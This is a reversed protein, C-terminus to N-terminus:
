RLFASRRFNRRRRFIPRQCRFILVGLSRVSTPIISLASRAATNLTDAPMAVPRRSAAATVTSLITWFYKLITAIRDDQDRAVAIVSSGRSAVFARQFWM